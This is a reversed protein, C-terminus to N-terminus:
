LVTRAVPLGILDALALVTRSNLRGMGPLNLLVILIVFGYRELEQYRARLDGRLLFRFARSGDLPPIPLLNFVMLGLNVIATRVLVQGLALGPTTEFTSPAIRFVLHLLVACALAIAFNTAVGALAVLIADRPHRRLRAEFVPVPKAAGFLFTGGSVFYTVLPVVVSMMPDIHPIPNATLRGANKATPDGCRYAVWGHAVEHAIISYLFAVFALVTVIM